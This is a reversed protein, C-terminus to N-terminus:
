LLPLQSCLVRLLFLLFFLLVRLLYFLLVRLLHFLLVRLLHFLLVRLLHFVVTLLLVVLSHVVSLLVDGLYDCAHLVALPLTM